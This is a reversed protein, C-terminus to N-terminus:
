WRVGGVWSRRGHVCCSYFNAGVRRAAEGYGGDPASVLLAAPAPAACALFPIGARRRYSPLSPSCRRRRLRRRLRRHCDVDEVRGERKQYGGNEGRATGSRLRRRRRGRGRGRYVAGTSCPTPATIDVSTPQSSGNMVPPIGLRSPPPCPRIRIAYARRRAPIQERTATNQELAIWWVLSSGGGGGSQTKGRRAREM